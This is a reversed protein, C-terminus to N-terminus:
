ALLTTLASKYAAFATNRDDIQQATLVGGIHVLGLQQENGQYLPGNYGCVVLPASVVAASAQSGASGMASGDKYTIMSDSATRLAVYYGEADSNSYQLNTASNLRQSTQNTTSRAIFNTTAAGQSGVDINNSQVDSNVQVGIHCANQSYNSLASLNTDGVLVTAGNAESGDYVGNGTLGNGQSYTPGTHSAPVSLDNTGPNILNVRTAAESVNALLYHADDTEFAGNPNM